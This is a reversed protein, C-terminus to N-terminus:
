ICRSKLRVIAQRLQSLLTEQHLVIQEKKNKTVEEEQPTQEIESTTKCFLTLFSIAMATLRKAQVM